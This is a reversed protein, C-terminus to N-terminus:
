EEVDDDGFGPSPHVGVICGDEPDVCVIRDFTSWYTREGGGNRECYARLAGSLARHRTIVDWIGDTIERAIAYRYGVLFGPANSEDRLVHRKGQRYFHWRDAEVKATVRQVVMDIYSAADTEPVDSGLINCCFRAADRNWRQMMGAHLLRDFVRDAAAGTPLPPIVSNAFLECQRITTTM